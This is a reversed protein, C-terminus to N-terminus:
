KGLPQGLRIKQGAEIDFKFDLPAEFVMVITSGLKFGGMETGRSYTVRGGCDKLVKQEIHTGLPRDLETDPVNTM